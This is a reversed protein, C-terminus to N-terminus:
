PRGSTFRKGRAPLAGLDGFDTVDWSGELRYTDGAELNILTCSRPAEDTSTTSRRDGSAPRSEGEHERTMWSVSAAAAVVLLVVTSRM